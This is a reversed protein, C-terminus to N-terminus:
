RRDGEDRLELEDVIGGIFPRDVIKTRKAGERAHELRLYRYRLQVIDKLMIFIGAGIANRFWVPDLDDFTGTARFWTMGDSVEHVVSATSHTSFSEDSSKPFISGTSFLRGLPTSQTASSTTSRTPNRSGYRPSLLTEMGLFRRLFDSYSAAKALLKGMLNAIVPGSLAGIILRALSQPSVYVTRDNTEIAEAGPPIEQPNGNEDVNVTGDQDLGEVPADEGIVILRTQRRGSENRGNANTTTRRSFPALVKKTVRYKLMIYAARVWPVLLITLGPSPPYTRGPSAFYPSNSRPSANDWRRRNMGRRLSTYYGNYDTLYPMHFMMIPWLVMTPINTLPYHFFSFRSVILALPIIPIDLYYHWPWKGGLVRGAADKGIWLRIAACGYATAAVLIGGGAVGATAIPLADRLFKNGSEFLRLLGPKQEIIGYIESCQPCQIPKKPDRTRRTRIWTLLCEEHAMLSCKCPHVWKKPPGGLEAEDADGDSCIWCNRNKVDNVTAVRFWQKRSSSSANQSSQSFGAYPNPVARPPSRPPSPLLADAPNHTM